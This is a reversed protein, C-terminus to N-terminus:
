KQCKNQDICAARFHPAHAVVPGLVQAFDSALFLSRPVQAHQHQLRHVASVEPAFQEALAQHLNLRVATQRLDRPPTGSEHELPQPAAIDVSVPPADLRALHAEFAGRGLQLPHVTTM